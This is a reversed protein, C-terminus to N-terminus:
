WDNVGGMECLLKWEDPSVPSVSLRSQKLLAMEKLPPTSKIRALSVPTKFSVKASVDVCVFKGTTDTPDPYYEKEITIIGVIEKGKNSHYFFGEDGKKMSMMFNRAQYNRVGDWPETEVSQQQAWSWKFPESKLLWYQKM